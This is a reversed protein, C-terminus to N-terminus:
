DPFAGRSARAAAAAAARAEQVRPDEELAALNVEVLRAASQAAAAALALAAEADAQVRPEGRGAAEVALLAVDAAASAIALPTAAAEALAAGLEADRREAPIEEPHALTRLSREYSVADRQALGGLRERLLDAQVAIGLAEPWGDTSLRATMGVLSAAVAGAVAAASAGGPAPGGAALAELWEGLSTRLVDDGSTVAPNERLTAAATARFFV